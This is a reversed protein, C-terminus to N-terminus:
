ELELVSNYKLMAVERTFDKSRDLMKLALEYRLKPNNILMLIAERLEREDINILIASKGNQSIDVHAPINSLISPIGFVYSDLVSLPFGEINSLQVYIDAMNYIELVKEYPLFGYFRINNYNSYLNKLIEYRSGTGVVHLKVNKLDKCVQCLLDVNKTDEIRGCYLVNYTEKEQVRVSPDIQFNIESWNHIIETKKQICKPLEYKMYDNVVILRRMFLLSELYYMFRKPMSTMALSTHRVGYCKGKFIANLFLSYHAEYQGNLIIRDPNIRIVTKIVDFLSLFRSKNIFYARVGEKHLINYLEKCHTIVWIEHKHKFLQALKRIYVEGGGFFSTSSIVCIKM